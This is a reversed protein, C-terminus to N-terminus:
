KMTDLIKVKVYLLCMKKWTELKNKHKCIINEKGVAASQLRSLWSNKNCILWTRLSTFFYLLFNDRFFNFAAFWSRWFSLRSHLNKAFILSKKQNKKGAPLGRFRASSLITRQDIEESEITRPTPLQSDPFMGQNITQLGVTTWKKGENRTFLFQFKDCMKEHIIKLKASHKILKSSFIVYCIFKFHRCHSFAHFKFNEVM